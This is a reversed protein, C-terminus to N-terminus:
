EDAAEEPAVPTKAKEGGTKGAAPPPFLWERVHDVVARLRGDSITERYVSSMHAVEHGMIYDAAPQDKAEDAITRFSHRLTYFNRHGNLGLKDLLKRMAQTLPGANETKTWSQGYKTIFVLGADAARKPTPRATLAEQIASVTEPWLVCRRPIGTKPRPFDIVARELDVASQPLTGCDTNGYGCNIGLLIMAKVQPGPRVLEAGGKGVVLAGEILARIEWAAFLKPGQKARHLRLTKKSTRKFAPGFRMPRDLIGSDYAHKYACRIVQVVTSMRPPGNKKALKSKLAAFDQPDLTAVAKHWGLGKLMMKMIAHYDAWTRPSLEGAKVAEEKAALFANAVDKVTLTEPNQRPTKGAHLAEKQREYNDLAGAPDTWPGFYHIKGRIKKCWYGAPHATLPFEPYPKPPKAPKGSPAAATFHSDSM